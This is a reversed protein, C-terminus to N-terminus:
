QAAQRISRVLHAFSPSRRCDPDLHRGLLTSGALKQYRGSTLERLQVDPIAQRDPNRFRAKGQLRELAPLGYVAGVVSLQALYWSELERCAIRVVASVGAKGCLDRLKQKLVMCDMQDQDHVVICLARDGRYHRLDKGLNEHLDSKGRYVFYRCHPPQPFLRPVLGELMRRASEEELFFVLPRM